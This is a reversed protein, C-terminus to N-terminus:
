CCICETIKQSLSMGENKPFIQWISLDVDPKGPAVQEDTIGTFIANWLCCSTYSVTWCSCLLSHGQHHLLFVRLKDESILVGFDCSDASCGDTFLGSSVLFSRCTFAYLLFWFSVPLLPPSVSYDLEMGGHPHGLFHLIIVNCLNELLLSIVSDWMLRGLRPARCRSSLGM